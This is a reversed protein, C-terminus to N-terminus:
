KETGSPQVIAVGFPFVLERVNEYRSTVTTLERELENDLGELRTVWAQRDRVVQNRELTDLDDFTLQVGGDSDVANQLTTRLQTFVGRMRQEDDVRRRELTKVLSAVREKARTQVDQALLPELRIWDDAVRKCVSQAVMRCEDPELAGEIAQRLQTYRPQELELRRGRGSGALARGTLMVEEHLRAGDGGVVVLRAFVAIMLDDIGAEGPLDAQVAAVRHLVSTDGWIASRLLRTSHSVLPHELHAYVVDPGSLGADFTLPRAQGTLPDDQRVLTREWGSRLTPPAIIGPTQEILAPQQAMSLAVDVVRRVNASRVHLDAVSRDLQTRLRAVQARLDQEARLLQVSPHAKVRLPDVLVPRGLMHAEVASALVPNVSGLDEREVAIKTAVRSLFELDADYSNPGAKQWDAGVFHSVMVEHKQGHRDVRGIRQELRNPNFPIDYHIVRHCHLQLDIGESASDTALLVRIPHRDPEAQFAAKLHERRKGDMGGFLLGLREGGLGSAEILEALWRQTDVYETFVIVREDSARLSLLEDVLASAKSDAPGVNRETWAVLKNLLSESEGGSVIGDDIKLLLEAEADASSEDDILDDDWGVAEQLYEPLEDSRVGVRKITQRHAELTRAFALPSSFLRKKLLLAVLDNGRVKDGPVKVRRSQLYRELLQHGEREANTYILEIAQTKRGKFLRQGAEDVLDDKLRRVMVQGLVKPDPEVGRTFRQPDLMELLAQWSERYGNHPTASLFLRHQSYEGLRRVARTQHSDVAYGTTKRPAPPACHHAEDVILLDIFGPHRSQPTLVEDLLRQVRPTRLWQLSIITRPFVAFPNALLGHSRRLSRLAAADLVTFDLGFKEDMEDKWKGTLPAPCVVIMRRARHRLLLEQAVLGAEITKGLGVDDAILLNVRPMALARAVPALQYTEITIGSRFPAQLTRNDASAITGWRVADLFAGLRQPDDFGDIRVEPLKTAPVIERGPEVEWVVTLERGLDDDSVSSLTVLTRGPLETPALEDVLQRSSNVSTVVWQQGRVRVLQGVEPDILATTM